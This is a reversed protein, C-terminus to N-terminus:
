AGAFTRSVLRQPQCSPRSTHSSRKGLVSWQALYSRRWAMLVHSILHDRIVQSEPVGFSAAHERIERASIM